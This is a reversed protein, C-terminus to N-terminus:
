GYRWEPTGSGSGSEYRCMSRLTIGERTGAPWIYRHVQLQFRVDVGDELIWSAVQQLELKGFAVGVLVEVKETLKHKEIVGKVWDYDRRSSIVFKVEDGPRLREINIWDVEDVMGSDPCKLDVIRVAGEPLVSIDLSGNTEVLVRRGEELLASVLERTEDQLLPEGGTIEVLNCDLLRISSLIEEIDMDVGNEYAHVTDCYNCRLNCGTLRVFACPLGAYTSEGQISKFIETVKLM